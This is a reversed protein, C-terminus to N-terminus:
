VRPLGNNLSGNASATPSPSFSAQRIIQSAPHQLNESYIRLCFHLSDQLRPLQQKQNEGAADITLLLIHDFVERNFIPYKSLSKPVSSDQEIVL